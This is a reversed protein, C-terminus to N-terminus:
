LDAYAEEDANSLWESELTSGVTKLYNADIQSVKNVIVQGNQEQFQIYDGLQLNLKNRISKPITTQYKTTLKSFEM